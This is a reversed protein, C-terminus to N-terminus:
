PTLPLSPVIRRGQPTEETALVYPVQNPNFGLMLVFHLDAAQKEDSETEFILDWGDRRSTDWYQIM